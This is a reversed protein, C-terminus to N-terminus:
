KLVIKGRDALLGVYNYVLLDRLCGGWILGFHFKRNAYAIKRVIGVLSPPMNTNTRDIRTSAIVGTSCLEFCRVIINRGRLWITNQSRTASRRASVQIPSCGTSYGKIKIPCTAEIRQKVSIKTAIGIVPIISFLRIFCLTETFYGLVKTKYVLLPAISNGSVWSSVVAEGDVGM